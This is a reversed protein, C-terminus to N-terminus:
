AVVAFPFPRPNDITPTQKEGKRQALRAAAANHAALVSLTRPEFRAAVQNDEAWDSAGQLLNYSYAGGQRSDDYAYEGVACAYLTTIGVGALAIAQDYAARCKRGDLVQARAAEFLLAKRFYALGPVRCCDLIITQRRGVRLYSSELDHGDSLELVTDGSATSHCAHGSFIVVSYDVAKLSQVAIMVDAVRPRDLTQIESAFWWGGAASDLFTRYAERDLNVGNCYNEDGPEGSNTIILAKRTM